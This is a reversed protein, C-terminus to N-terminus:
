KRLYKFSPDPRGVFCSKNFGYKKIIALAQRAESEKGGFDFMWHTGDVIKWRGGINKVEATDPNFSVCDEGAFAGFPASGSVLLYSFSPDPRGVFCSQNMRYHKIISLSQRAESEKNGFDFIWHSGDVIKWRGNIHKVEARDPNFSVCDEKIIAAEKKCITINKDINSLWERHDAREVGVYYWQGEQIKLDDPIEAVIKSDEWSIVKLDVHIGHGGLAVGKGSKTGFNRGLIALRGGKMGCKEEYGTIVPKEVEAKCEIKFNAKNSEVERPYVVKIAQWGEYTPLGPGGLRWTTSVPKTGDKDFTLTNVPASAGDSRIFRYQLKLPPRTINTATIEGKFRITTPCPGSYSEPDATLKASIKPQADVTGIGIFLFLGCIMSALVMKVMSEKLMESRRGKIGIKIEDGM